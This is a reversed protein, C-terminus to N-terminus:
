PYRWEPKYAPSYIASQPFLSNGGLKSDRSTQKPPTLVLHTERLGEFYHLQWEYTVTEKPPTSTGIVAGKDDKTVGTASKPTVTLKTGDVKYAGAEEVIYWQPKQFHGGWAELHFTYTGDQKFVYQRKQSGYSMKTTPDTASSAASWTGVISAQMTAAPAPAAPAATVVISDLVTSAAPHCATIGNANAAMIVVSGVMAGGRVVVLQGYFEQDGSKLKAGVTHKMLRRKTERAPYGIVESAAFQVEIVESWEKELDTALDNTAAHPEYVGILCFAQGDIKTYARRGKATEAKYGQPPTFTWAGLTEATASASMALVVVLLLWRM